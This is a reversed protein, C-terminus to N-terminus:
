APPTYESVAPSPKDRRCSVCEKFADNFKICEPRQYLIKSSKILIYILSIGITLMTGLLLLTTVNQDHFVWLSLYISCAQFGVNAVSLNTPTSYRLVILQTFFRLGGLASNGLLKLWDVADQQAAMLQYMQGDQIFAWPVLIILSLLDLWFLFAFPSGIDKKCERMVAHAFIYKLASALVGLLQFIIGMVDVKNDSSSAGAVNTLVPGVCLLVVMLYIVPHSLKRLVLSELLVTVTPNVALLCQQITVSLMSVAINTFAMDLSLLVVVLMLGKYNARHPVGWQDPKILFVPVCCLCTVFSSWASLAVPAKVEMVLAKTTLTKTVAVVIYLMIALPAALRHTSFGEAAVKDADVVVDAKTGVNLPTSEKVLESKSCGM